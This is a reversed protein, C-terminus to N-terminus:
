RTITKTARIRGYLGVLNIIMTILGVVGQSIGESEKAIGELSISGIQVIKFTVLIGVITGIINAVSGVSLYWPKTDTIEPMTKEKANLLKSLTKEIEPNM